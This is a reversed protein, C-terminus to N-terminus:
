AGTVTLTVIGKYQAGHILNEQNPVEIYVSGQRVWSDIYPYNNVFTNDESTGEAPNTIELYTQYIINLTAESNSITQAKNTITSSVLSKYKYEYSKNNYAHTTTVFTSRFDQNLIVATEPSITVRYNLTKNGNVLTLPSFKFSISINAKTNNSIRYNFAKFNNEAAKSIDISAMDNIRGLNDDLIECEIGLPTQNFFESASSTSHKIATFSKEVSALTSATTFVTTLFLYFFIVLLKKM